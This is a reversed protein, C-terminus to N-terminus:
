SGASTTLAILARVWRPLCKEITATASPASDCVSAWDIAAATFRRSFASSFFSLFSTFAARSSILRNASTSFCLVSRTVSCSSSSVPKSDRM